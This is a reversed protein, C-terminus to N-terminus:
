IIDAFARELQRFYVAGSAVLVVAVLGSVAVMSTPPETTGVLAWRFGEIVGVMPNMAYLMRWREPVISTPYAIPTAFMWLQMLFPVVYRIDRYQVNIASLWLGVGLAIIFALVFFCPLWLVKASPWIGYIGTTVLVLLVFAIIFDIAGAFVAALPIALRPFYVKSVLHGSNVLSSSAQTVANSFFTWPVLAAFTFIPYPIGDSPMKALKGFFLSFVLMTFVPQIIAWAAGLLTQKYRVKIERWALFYLLERYEWLGRLDLRVWGKPPEIVIRPLTESSVSAATSM